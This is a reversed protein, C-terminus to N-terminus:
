EFDQRTQESAEWEKQSANAITYRGFALAEAKREFEQPHTEVAVALDLTWKMFRGDDLKKAM